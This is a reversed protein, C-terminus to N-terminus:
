VREIEMEGFAKGQKIAASGDKLLELIALFSVIVETRNQANALLQTFSLKKSNKLLNRISDLKAKVSIAHDITATPLPNIPRLRAVLASM